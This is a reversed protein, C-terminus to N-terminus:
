HTAAEPRPTPQPRWSDGYRERLARFAELQGPAYEGPQGWQLFLSLAPKSDEEKLFRVAYTTFNGRKAPLEEFRVLAIDAMNLHFEFHESHLNAYHPLHPVFFLGKFEGRAELVATDNTVIFRLLGLTACEELLSKLPADM